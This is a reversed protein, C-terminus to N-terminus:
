KKIPAPKKWYYQKHTKRCSRLGGHGKVNAVLITREKDDDNEPMYYYEEELPKGAADKGQRYIVGIPKLNHLISRIQSLSLKSTLVSITNLFSAPTSSLRSFALHNILINQIESLNPLEMVSNDLEPTQQKRIIKKKKKLPQQQQSQPEESTARRKINTKDTLVNDRKEQSVPSISSSRVPITFEDQFIKFTKPTEIPQSKLQAPKPTTPEAIKMSDEPNSSSSEKSPTYDPKDEEKDVGKQADDKDTHIYPKKPKLPTNPLSLNPLKTIPTDIPKAVPITSKVQPEVKEIESEVIKPEKENTEILVPEEDDTLEEDIDNPNLLVVNKSIQLLINQFKPMTITEGKQVFFETHNYDLKISKSINQHHQINLPEGTTNEMVIFNNNTNTAYVFCPKPIIVGVGNSGLCTLIVQQSNYSIKLHIRSIRSDLANVAFECSRSSRGISFHSHTDLLPIRIVSKDPNLVNFDSNINAKPKEIIVDKLIPKSKFVDTETITERAPSSSRYLSSSPNPTPYEERGVRLEGLKAKNVIVGSGFPDKSSQYSYDDLLPSSPPFQYNSNSM